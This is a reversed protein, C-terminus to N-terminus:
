AALFSDLTERMEIVLADTLSSIIRFTVRSNGDVVSVTAGYPKHDGPDSLRGSNLLYWCIQISLRV